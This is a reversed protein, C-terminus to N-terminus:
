RWYILHNLYTAKLRVTMDLSPNKDIYEFYDNESLAGEFMFDKLQIGNVIDISIVARNITDALSEDDGAIM